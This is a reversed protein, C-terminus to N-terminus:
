GLWFRIEADVRWTAWPTPHHDLTSLSGRASHQPQYQAIGTDVASNIVALDINVSEEMLEPLSCPPALGDTTPEEVEILEYADGAANVAPM